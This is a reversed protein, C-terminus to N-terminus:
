CFIEFILDPQSIMMSIKLSAPSSSLILRECSDRCAICNISFGSFKSYTSSYKSLITSQKNLNTSFMKSFCASIARSRMSNTAFSSPCLFPSMSLIIGLRFNFCAFVASLSIKLFSSHFVMKRFRAFLDKSFRSSIALFDCEKIKLKSFFYLLLNVDVRHFIIKLSSNLAMKSSRCTLISLLSLVWSTVELCLAFMMLIYLLTTSNILPISSSFNASEVLIRISMM